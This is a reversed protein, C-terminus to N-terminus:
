KTRLETKVDNLENRLSSTDREYENMKTELIRNEKELHDRQNQLVTIMSDNRDQIDKREKEWRTQWGISQQSHDKKLSSERELSRSLESKTVRM